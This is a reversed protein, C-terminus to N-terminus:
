LRIYEELKLAGSDFALVLAFTSRIADKHKCNRLYIASPNQYEDCIKMYARCLLRIVTNAFEVLVTMTKQGFPLEFTTTKTWGRNNVDDVKCIIRCDPNTPPNQLQLLLRSLPLLHHRWTYYNGNWLGHCPGPRESKGHLGMRIHNMVLTIRMGNPELYEYPLWTDDFLVHTVRECDHYIHKEVNGDYGDCYHVVIDTVNRAVPEYRIERRGPIILKKLNPYLTMDSPLAYFEEQMHFTRLTPM